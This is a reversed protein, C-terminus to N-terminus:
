RQSCEEWLRDVEKGTQLAQEKYEPMIQELREKIEAEHETLWEFAKKLDEEKSLSQVPLVYNEETGFLDRAIGRAKVSYGVVLTPVCASYAAITAHTRAGVFFRCRSIYGKLEECSGDPIEIVRGTDKFEEYLQHIPKRDDNQTRVVHPMLAIQMDTNEIIYQILGRYNEMTIGAKRENDQIMPSINIGVTNGEAFNEPLPLEKKGLTFAPDPYCLINPVNRTAQGQQEMKAQEKAAAGAVMQQLAEFTISERAIITHYKMLDKVLEERKLLEPEISCGLLMTKVGKEAFAKNALWLDHLMTDYCYNDGGISIALPAMKGKFIDQYRYRIFSTEDKTLKRYIYYLVHMMRHDEFRRESVIRCLDKLSYKEDESGFYSVLVAKEKIMHCLSNVIAECGHNASGAHMYMILRNENM